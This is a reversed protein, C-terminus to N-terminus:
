EGASKALRVAKRRDNESRIRKRLRLSAPTVELLEDDELYELAAELSFERPPALDANRDHSGSARVNTLKKERCVNVELDDPRSNEGVVMGEYVDTAPHIFFQGRLQLGDLAYATSKGRSSSVLVGNPRGPVEGRYAEYDWFVHHMVAEGRTATLLRGRLGILGRSPIKFSLHLGDPRRDMKELVGRRSGALEMAKGGMDEPVDVSLLEIPELREGDREHFIVHPRGVAFEYGERRMTEIVIGLHLLGRGSVLFGEPTQELRLAINSRLERELREKLHRSTVFRGERGLFPSDNPRFEMTLTPEDILVAPLPEPNDPDAITDYIGIDPIGTVLAIDGAGVEEAGTRGIGSFIQVQEVRGTRRGGDRFLVAVETKERLRGRGVRGIAIRGVYDNYDIAAVQMQLPGDRDAEPPPIHRIIADLLPRCDSSRDGIELKAVGQRGSAYIVPFDLQEEAAGLQLFLEFVEDLAEHPRAGPRDIKNIVVLPKLGAQLAKRLVFRTQPMPGDFADVLLLVGDAMNLVREVEGGFDAHGPTDIVNIRVDRYNISANKSFITIGREREIANSDLVCDVMEQNQRFVHCQRLLADVLTTKGHDVHAIIAINRLDEIRTPM